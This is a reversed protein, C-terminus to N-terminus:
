TNSDLRQQIVRRISEYDYGQRETIFENLEDLKSEDSTATERIAEYGDAIERAGVDRFATETEPLWNSYRRLFSDIGDMDCMVEAESILWVLRQNSDLAKVDQDPKSLVDKIFDDPSM